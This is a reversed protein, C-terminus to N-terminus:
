VTVAPRRVLESLLQVHTRTVALPDADASDLLEHGGWESVVAGHYGAGALVSLWAGHSARVSEVDPDWFKAHAHRALPLVAAWDAPQSRGCRGIVGAVLNALVAEDRHGALAALAAGM